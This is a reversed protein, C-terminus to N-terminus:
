KGSGPETLLILVESTVLFMYDHLCKGIHCFYVLILTIVIMDVLMLVGVVIVAIAWVPFPTRAAPLIFLIIINVWTTYM